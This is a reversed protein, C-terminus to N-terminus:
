LFKPSTMHEFVYCIADGAAQFGSFIIDYIKIAESLELKTPSIWFKM